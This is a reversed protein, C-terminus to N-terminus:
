AVVRFMREFWDANAEAAPCRVAYNANELQFAVAIKGGGDMVTSAIVPLGRIKLERAIAHAKQVLRHEEPTM